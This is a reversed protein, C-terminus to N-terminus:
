VKKSIIKSIIKYEEKVISESSLNKLLDVDELHKFVQNVLWEILYAGVENNDVEYDQGITSFVTDVVHTCEHSIMGYTITQKSNFNLFVLITRWGEHLVTYVGGLRDISPEDIGFKEVLEKGQKENEVTAIIFNYDYPEIKHYSINSM